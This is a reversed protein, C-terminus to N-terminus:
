PNDQNGYQYISDGSLSSKRRKRSDPRRDERSPVASGTLPLGHGHRLQLIYAASAAALAFRMM